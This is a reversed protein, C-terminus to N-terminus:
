AMWAESAPTSFTPGKLVSLVITNQKQFNLRRLSKMDTTAQFDKKESPPALKTQENWGDFLLRGAENDKNKLLNQVELSTKLYFPVLCKRPKFVSITKTGKLTEQTGPTVRM